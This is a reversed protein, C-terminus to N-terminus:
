QSRKVSKVVTASASPSPDFNDTEIWYICSADATIADARLGTDAVRQAFSGGLGGHTVIAERARLETGNSMEGHLVFGAEDAFFAQIRSNEEAKYTFSAGPVTPLSGAPPLLSIRAQNCASPAEGCTPTDHFYFGAKTVAGPGKANRAASVVPDFGVVGQAVKGEALVAGWENGLASLSTVQGVFSGVQAPPRGIDSLDHRWVMTLPPVSDTSGQALYLSDDTVAFAESSRTAVTATTRATTEYAEITAGNGYFVRSDRAAIQANGSMITKVKEAGKGHPVVYLSHTVVTLVNDRDYVLVALFGKGVAVKVGSSGAIRALVKPISECTGSPPFVPTPTPAPNVPATATSSPTPVPTSADPGDDPIKDLYVVGGCGFAFASALAALSVFRSSLAIM